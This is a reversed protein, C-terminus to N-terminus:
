QKGVTYHAPIQPVVWLSNTFSTDVVDVSGVFKNQIQRDGESQWWYEEVEWDMDAPEVQHIM